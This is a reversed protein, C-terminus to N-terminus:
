ESGLSKKFLGLIAAVDALNWTEERPDDDSFIYDSSSIMSRCMTEVCLSPSIGCDRVVEVPDPIDSKM